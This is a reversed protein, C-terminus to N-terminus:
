INQTVHNIYEKIEKKFREKSFKEVSQRIYNKDYKEEQAIFRRVGDSLVEPTAEDFFEGNRGEEVIEEVGGERIAIVPVGFTMAEAPAIGFDDVGPFIFARANEYLRSIKEDSQWGLFKINKGAISELYKRQNGEGVILLPLGLKSFAEIAVSIKKYPSLRSVILFYKISSIKHTVNQLNEAEYKIDLTKHNVPPYIVKSERRYYKEIRRKTYNSNAILYDPRDAALRDWLRFYSLIPRILFGLKEKRTERLYKENYDWVFRMPSHIYAIHTTKPKVVIGKSWAGSSSIVLDYERLNFTETATPLMFMLFKINRRLFKPFKQFFSTYIKKNEFKGHMRERDYVITYIPAEPFIECLAELTKEAGGYQNLFDHILAVKLEKKKM